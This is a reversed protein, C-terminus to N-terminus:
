PEPFVEPLLRELLRSFAVAGVLRGQDVVAVIPSRVRAMVAAVELVAADADV